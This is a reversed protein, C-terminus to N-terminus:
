GAIGAVGAVGAIATGILLLVALGISVITVIGLFKQWKATELLDSKQIENM